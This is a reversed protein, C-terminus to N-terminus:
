GSVIPTVILGSVVSLTVPEGVADAAITAATGDLDTVSLAGATVDTVLYWRGANAANLGTWGSSTVTDGPRFGSTLFADAVSTFGVGAVAAIDSATLTVGANITCSDVTASGTVVGTAAAITDDIEALWLTYNFPYDLVADPDKLITYKSDKLGTNVKIVYSTTM